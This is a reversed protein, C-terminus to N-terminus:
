MEKLNIQLEKTRRMTTIKYEKATTKIDKNNNCKKLTTCRQQKLSASQLVEMEKTTKNRMPTTKHRKTATKYCNSTINHKKIITKCRM